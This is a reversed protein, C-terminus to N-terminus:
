IFFLLGSVYSKWGNIWRTVPLVKQEESYSPNVGHSGDKGGWDQKTKQHGKCVHTMHCLSKSFFFVFFRPVHYFLKKKKKRCEWEWGKDWIEQSFM